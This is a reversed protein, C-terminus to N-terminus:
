RRRNCCLDAQAFRRVHRQLQPREAAARPPPLIIEVESSALLLQSFGEVLWLPIEAGRGQATRNALELLLVQVIARVYRPREVVNPLDVRYQWGNKFRGLYDHHHREAAVPPICCWISREAGPHQSTWSACYCSNSGSAPYPQSPRSWSSSTRTQRWPRSRRRRATASRAAYAIFQGSYSRMSVLDSPPLQAAAVCRLAGLWVAVGALLALRRGEKAKAKRNM